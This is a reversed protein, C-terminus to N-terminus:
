QSVGPSYKLEDRINLIGWHYMGIITLNSAKLKEYSEHDISFGNTIIWGSKNSNKKALDAIEKLHKNNEDGPSNGIMNIVFDPQNKLEFYDLVVEYLTETPTDFDLKM